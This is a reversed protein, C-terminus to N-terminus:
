SRSPGRRHKGKGHSRLEKLLKMSRPSGIVAVQLWRAPLYESIARKLSWFHRRGGSSGAHFLPM